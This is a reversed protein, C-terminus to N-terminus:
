EALRKKKKLHDFLSILTLINKKVRNVRQSLTKIKRIQQVIKFVARKVNDKVRKPRTLDHTAINGVFCLM